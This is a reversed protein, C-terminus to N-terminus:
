ELRKDSGGGQLSIVKALLERMFEMEREKGEAAEIRAAFPNVARLMALFEDATDFQHVQSDTTVTVPNLGATKLFDTCAAVIDPVHQYYPVSFDADQLYM